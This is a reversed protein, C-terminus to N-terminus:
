WRIVRAVINLLVLLVIGWVSYIILKKVLSIYKKERTVVYAAILVFIAILLLATLIRLIFM